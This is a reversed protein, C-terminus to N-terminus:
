SVSGTTTNPLTGGVSITYPETYINPVYTPSPYVYYPRWTYYQKSFVEDLKRALEKAEEITM